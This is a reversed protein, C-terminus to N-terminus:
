PQPSAAPNPSDTFQQWHNEIVEPDPKGQHVVYRYRLRYTQGPEIQFEGEVMPAFCFYPMTPHLRVPQPHRFNAPHSLVAMGSTAGDIKGFMSVWNPRSHNGDHWSKGESTLYDRVLNPLDPPALDPNKKRAAEWEKIKRHADPDTWASSGRFAMGGYHYEEITLPSDSACTQESTLDFVFSEGDTEHVRVTWVEHLVPKPGGPAHVDEYLLRVRFGDPDIGLVADHSIRGLDLKQNWFELKRGEFQCKTWAFFLGHQHGHDPSFDGTIEQGAPNYVPHIYGSRRFLPNMGEPAEQTAKLYRLVPKEGQMVLISEETELVQIQGQAM